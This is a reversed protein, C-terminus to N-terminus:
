RAGVAAMMRDDFAVLAWATRGDIVAYGHTIVGTAVKVAGGERLAYCDMRATYTADKFVSEVEFVTLLEEEMLAEGLM